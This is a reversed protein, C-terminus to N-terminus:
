ILQFHQPKKVPKRKSCTSMCASFHRSQEKSFASKSRNPVRRSHLALDSAAFASPGWSRSVAKALAPMAHVPRSEHAFGNPTPQLDMANAGAGFIRTLQLDRPKKVPREESGTRLLRFYGAKKRPFLVRRGTQCGGPTSRWTVRPLLPPGALAPSRKQSSMGQTSRVRSARPRGAPEAQLAAAKPQTPVHVVLLEEITRQTKRLGPLNLGHLQIQGSLPHLNAHGHLLPRLPPFIPLQQGNGSVLFPSPAMQVGHLQLRDDRGPRRSNRPNLLILPPGRFFWSPIPARPPLLSGTFASNQPKRRQPAAPTRCCLRPPRTPQTRVPPRDVADHRSGHLASQSYGNSWTRM